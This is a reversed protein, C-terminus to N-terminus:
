KFFSLYTICKSILSVIILFSFCHTRGHQCSLVVPELFGRGYSFGRDEGTMGQTKVAM